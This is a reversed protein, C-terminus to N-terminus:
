MFAIDAGDVALDNSVHCNNEDVHPIITFDELANFTDAVEKLHIQLDQATCSSPICFSWKIENRQRKSRDKSLVKFSCYM